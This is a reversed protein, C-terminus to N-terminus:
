FSTVDKSKQANKRNYTVHGRQVELSSQARAMQAKIGWEGRSGHVKRTKAKVVMDRQEVFREPIVTVKGTKSVRTQAKVTHARVRTTHEPIAETWTHYSVISSRWVGCKTPDDNPDVYPAVVPVYAPVSSTGDTVFTANALNKAEGRAMLTTKRTTLNFVDVLRATGTLYVIFMFQM